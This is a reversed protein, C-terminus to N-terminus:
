TMGSTTVKKQFWSLPNFKAETFDLKRLKEKEFKLVLEEGRNGISKVIENREEHDVAKRIIKDRKRRETRNAKLEIEEYLITQANIDIETQITNDNILSKDNENDASTLPELLPVNSDYVDVAVEVKKNKILEEQKELYEIYKEFKMPTYSLAQSIYGKLIKQEKDLTNLDPHLEKYREIKKPSLTLEQMILGKLEEETFNCYLLPILEEQKYWLNDLSNRISAYVSGIKYPKGGGEGKYITKKLYIRTLNLVYRFHHIANAIDKIPIKQVIRKYDKYSFLLIDYGLSPPLGDNYVTCLLKISDRDKELMDNELFYFFWEKLTDPYLVNDTNSLNDAM